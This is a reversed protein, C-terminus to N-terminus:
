GNTKFLVRFLLSADKLNSSKSKYTFLISIPSKVKLVWPLVANFEYLFLRLRILFPDFFNSKDPIVNISFHDYLSRNLYLNSNM